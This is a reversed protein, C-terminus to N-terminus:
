MVYSPKTICFMKPMQVTLATGSIYEANNQPRKNHYRTYETNFVTFLSMFQTHGLTLSLTFTM